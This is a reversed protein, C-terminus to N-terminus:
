CGDEDDDIWLRPLMTSLVDMPDRTNVARVTPQNYTITYVKPDFPCHVRVDLSVFTDGSLIFADRAHVSCQLNMALWTTHAALLFWHPSDIPRHPSDEISSATVRRAVVHRDGMGTYYIRGTPYACPRMFINTPGSTVHNPLIWLKALQDNEVTPLVGAFVWGDLGAVYSLDLSLRYVTM